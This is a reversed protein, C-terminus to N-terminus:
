KFPKLVVKNMQWADLSKVSIPTTGNNFIYLNAKEELAVTPYARATITIRGGQVYSEVISHDVLVRVSLTDETALVPVFHGYETKDIDETLSSRSQDSCFYTTWTSNGKHAIYFFVALQEQFDDDASVLLGFPGFVGRHSSGGQTCDFPDIVDAAASGVATSLNPYKFTVEVDLQRGTVGKVKLIAGADLKVDTVSVKNGRLTEVEEIPWQILNSGTKSDLALTRPMGIMSAWGKADDAELSDSENVWGVLIRRKKLPDFLSKAAYFKGYDHRYGSGIDLEPFDPIFRQAVKDYTGITYYDHWEDILGVKLVWKSSPAGTEYDVNFFDQMEWMGTGNLTHLVHDLPEWHRLDKSRYLLSMGQRFQQHIAGVIIMWYGDDTQWANTPDRFDRMGIGEPRTLVPNEDYKKWVRLLPDSPDDPLAICQSQEAELNEAGGTYMIFPTGDPGITGSGSFTGNIDYWHDGTIAWDLYLWHILDKSVTHGWTINGWRAGGINYQYFFHYYGKYFFLANTDGMWNRAPQYHYSTRQPDLAIESDTKDHLRGGPGASVSGGLFTPLTSGFLLPLKPLVVAVGGNPKLVTYLSLLGFLVAVVCCIALFSSKRLSWWTGRRTEHGSNSSSLRVYFEEGTAAAAVAGARGGNINSEIDGILMSPDM